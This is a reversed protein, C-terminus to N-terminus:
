HYFSLPSIFHLFLKQSFWLCVENSLLGKQAWTQDLPQAPLWGLLCFTSCPRVKQGQTPGYPNHHYTITTAIFSADGTKRVAEKSMLIYPLNLLLSNQNCDAKKLMFISSISESYSIYYSEVAFNHICDMQHLIIASLPKLWLDFILAMHTCHPSAWWKTDIKQAAAECM